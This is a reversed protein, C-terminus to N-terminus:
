CFQCRRGYRTFPRSRLTTSRAAAQTGFACHGVHYSKCLTHVTKHLARASLSKYIYMYLIIYIYLYRPIEFLVCNNAESRERRGAIIQVQDLICDDYGCVPSCHLLEGDVNGKTMDGVAVSALVM